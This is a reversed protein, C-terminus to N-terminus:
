LLLHQVKGGSDREMENGYLLHCCLPLRVSHHRVQFYPHFVSTHSFKEVHCFPCWHCESVSASCQCLGFLQHSCVLHHTEATTFAVHLVIWTRSPWTYNNCLSIFLAEILGLTFQHVSTFVSFLLQSNARDFLTLPCKGSFCVPCM